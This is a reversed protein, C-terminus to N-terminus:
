KVLNYGQIKSLQFCAVVEKELRFEVYEVYENCNHLIERNDKVRVVKDAKFNTFAYKEHPNNNFWVRWTKTEM